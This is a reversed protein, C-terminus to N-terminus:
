EEFREVLRDIAELPKAAAERVRREVRQIDATFEAMVKAHLSKDKFLCRFCIGAPIPFVPIPAANARIRVFDADSYAGERQCRTCIM